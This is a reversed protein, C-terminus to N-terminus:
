RGRCFTKLQGAVAARADRPAMLQFSFPSLRPVENFVFVRILDLDCARGLQESCNGSLRVGGRRQFQPKLVPFRRSKSTRFWKTQGLRRINLKSLCQQVLDQM